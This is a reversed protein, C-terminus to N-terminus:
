RTPRLRRCEFVTVGTFLFQLAVRSTVLSFLDHQGELGVQVAIMQKACKRRVFPLRECRM